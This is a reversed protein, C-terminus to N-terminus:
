IIYELNRIFKLLTIIQMLANLTFSDLNSDKAPILQGTKLSIRFHGRDELIEILDDVDGGSNAWEAYQNGLGAELFNNFINNRRLITLASDYKFFRRRLNDIDEETFGLDLLEQPYRDSGTFSGRLLAEILEQMTFDGLIDFNIDRRITGFFLNLIFGFEGDENIFGLGGSYLELYSLLQSIFDLNSTPNILFLLRKLLLDFEAVQAKTMNMGAVAYSSPKDTAARTPQKVILEILIEAVANATKVSSNFSLAVAIARLQEPTFLQGLRVTIEPEGVGLAVLRELFTTGNISYGLIVWYPSNSGGSGDPMSMKEPPTILPLDTASKKTIQSKTPGIGTDKAIQNRIVQELLKKAKKL